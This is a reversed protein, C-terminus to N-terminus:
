TLGLACPFFASGIPAPAFTAGPTRVVLFARVALADGLGALTDGVGALREAPLAAVGVVSATTIDVTSIAGSIFLAVDNAPLALAYRAADSFLAAVVTTAARTSIALAIFDACTALALTCGVTSAFLTAVIAATAGTACAVVTLCAGPFAVARARTSVM